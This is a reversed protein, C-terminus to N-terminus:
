LAAFRAASSRTLGRSPPRASKSALKRPLMNTRWKKPGRLFKQSKETDGAYAKAGSAGEKVVPARSHYLAAHNAIAIRLVLISLSLMRLIEDHCFEASLLDRLLQLREGSPLVLVVSDALHELELFEQVPDLEHLLDGLDRLAGVMM